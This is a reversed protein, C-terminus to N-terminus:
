REGQFFGLVIKKNLAGRDAESLKGLARAVMLMALVSAAAQNGAPVAEHFMSSGDLQVALMTIDDGPLPSSPFSAYM